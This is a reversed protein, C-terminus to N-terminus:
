FCERRGNGRSNSLQIMLNPASFNQYQAIYVCL